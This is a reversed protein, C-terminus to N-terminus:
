SKNKYTNSWSSSARSISVTWFSVMWGRLDYLIFLEHASIRNNAAYLHFTELGERRASELYTFLESTIVFFHQKKKFLLVCDFTATVAMWINLNVVPRKLLRSNQRTFEFKIRTFHTWVFKKYISHAKKWEGFSSFIWYFSVLFHPWFHQAKAGKWDTKRYHNITTTTTKELTNTKQLSMM